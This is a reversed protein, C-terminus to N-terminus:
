PQRRAAAPGHGPRQLRGSQPDGQVLREGGRGRSSRKGNQGSIGAQEPEAIYEIGSIAEHATPTTMAADQRGHPPRSTWGNVAVGRELLPQVAAADPRGSVVVLDVQEIGAFRVFATRGLVQDDVLAIVTQACAVEAEAVAAAAPTRQSLGTDVHLGAPCVLAVEVHLRALEDLAWDGEQARTGVSVTGGINYVSISPVRALTIALDLSNTAVTLGPAEPPDATMAEAVAHSLRGAGMLITGNRPLLPLVRAAMEQESPSLVPPVIGLTGPHVAPSIAGGHVRQLCGDSEMARLDRRITEQAVGLRRAVDVVDVRGKAALMDLILQHRASVSAPYSKM